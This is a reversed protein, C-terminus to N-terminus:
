RAIHVHTYRTCLITKNLAILLSRVSLVEVDISESRPVLVTVRGSREVDGGTDHKRKRRGEVMV